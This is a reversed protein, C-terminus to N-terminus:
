WPHKCPPILSIYIVTSQASARLTESKYLVLVLSPSTLGPVSVTAPGAPSIIRGLAVGGGLNEVEGQGDAMQVMLLPQGPSM